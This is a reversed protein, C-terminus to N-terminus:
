LESLFASEMQYRERLTLFYRCIEDLQRLSEDTHLGFNHPHWWLHYIEGRRAAHEMSKTIRRVKLPELWSLAPTYPRLFRSGRVNRLVGGDVTESAYTNCGSLNVYTDLLRFVRRVDFRSPTTESRYLFNEFNGRYHTLGYRGCIKLYEPSVQNRPFIVTRFSRRKRKADETARRVDAEFELPSQGAELCYYHSFTHSCLEVNDCGRLWELVEPCFFLRAPFDREITPLLSEYSSFQPHAYNPRIGDSDRLLEEVSHYDMAGVYAISCKIGYKSLLAVIHRLASVAGEARPQYRKIEEVTWGALGWLLEFDLSIVFYGKKM